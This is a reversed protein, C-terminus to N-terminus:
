PNRTHVLGGVTKYWDIQFKAPGKTMTKLHAHSKPMITLKIKTVKKSKFKVMETWRATVSLMLDSM